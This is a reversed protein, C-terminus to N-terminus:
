NGEKVILLMKAVLTELLIRADARTSKMRIDTDLVADLMRRLTETSLKAASYGANKLVFERNGYKFDKAAEGISKGCESATKARYMDILASSLGSLIIEPKEGQAFLTNLENYTSNFDNKMIYRSLYYSKTESNKVCLLQIIDATIEGGNVYASLKDIENKLANMDPGVMSVIKGANARHLKAGNKEAWKVMHAELAIDDLQNLELVTGYKEAASVFKSFRSKEKKKKAATDLTPMSFLLVTSPSIDACFRELEKYDSESLANIDYDTINVCKRDSFMSIQESADFIEELTTDSSLQYYDFESPNKGVAKKVLADTYKKVLYKESGYILYLTKLEGSIIEKKFEAENLKAM